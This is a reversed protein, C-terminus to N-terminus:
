VHAHQVATCVCEFVVVVSPSSCVVVSSKNKQKLIRDLVGLTWPDTNGAGVRGRGQDENIFQLGRPDM